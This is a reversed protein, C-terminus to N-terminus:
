GSRMLTKLTDTTEDVETSDVLKKFADNDLVLQTPILAEDPLQERAQMFFLLAQEVVYNKKLGLRQAFEDLQHKTEESILASIQSTHAM